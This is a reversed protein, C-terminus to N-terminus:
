PATRQQNQGARNAGSLTRGIALRNGGSNWREKLWCQADQIEHLTTHYDPENLARLLEEFKHRLREYCIIRESWYNEAVPGREAWDLIFETLLGLGQDNKDLLRCLSHITWYQLRSIKEEPWKDQYEKRWDNAIWLITREGIPLKEWSTPDGHLLSRLRNERQPDPMWGVLYPQLETRNNEVFFIPPWEEIDGDVKLFGLNELQELINTVIKRTPSRDESLRRSNGSQMEHFLDAAHTIVIAMRGLVRGQCRQRWPQLIEEQMQGGLNIAAVEISSVLLLLDIRPAGLKFVEKNKNRIWDPFDGRGAPDAGPADVIDMVQLLQATHGTLDALSFPVIVEAVHYQLSTLPISGTRGLEYCVERKEADDCKKVYVQDDRGVSPYRMVWFPSINPDSSRRSLLIPQNPQIGPPRPPRRTVTSLADEPLLYIILISSDFGPQRSFRVLACTTEEVGTPLPLPDDNTGGRIGSRIWNQILTSKAQGRKGVVVLSPRTDCKSKLQQLLTELEQLRPYWNQELRTRLETDESALNRQDLTQRIAQVRQEIRKVVGILRERLETQQNGLSSYVM